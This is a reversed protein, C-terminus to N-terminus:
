KEDKGFLQVRAMELEDDTIIGKKHFKQLKEFKAQKEELTEEQYVEVQQPKKQEEVKEELTTEVKVEEKQEEANEVKINNSTLLLFAVLSVLGLPFCAISAFIVYNKLIENSVTFNDLMHEAKDNFRKAAIFCYIGVPIFVLSFIYVAGFLYCVLTSLNFLVKSTKM